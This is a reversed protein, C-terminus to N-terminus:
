GRSSSNVQDAGSTAWSASADVSYRNSQVSRYLHKMGLFKAGIAAGAIDGGLIQTTQIRTRAHKTHVNREFARM